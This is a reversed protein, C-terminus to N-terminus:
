EKDEDDLIGVEVPGGGIIGMSAKYVKSCFAQPDAWFDSPVKRSSKGGRGDWSIEALSCLITIAELRVRTCGDFSLRVIGLGGWHRACLLAVLLDHTNTRSTTCRLGGFVIHELVPLPSTGEKIKDDNSTTANSQFHIARLEDRFLVDLLLPPVMDCIRLTQLQEFRSLREWVSVWDSPEWRGEYYLHNGDCLELETINKLLFNDLIINTFGVVGRVWHGFTYLHNFSYTPFTVQVCRSEPFDKFSVQTGFKFSARTFTSFDMDRFCIGAIRELLCQGDAGWPLSPTEDRPPMRDICSVYMSLLTSTHVGSLFFKCSSIIDELSLWTLRDLAVVDCTPEQPGTMKLSRSLELKELGRM